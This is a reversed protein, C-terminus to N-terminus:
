EEMWEPKKVPIKLVILDNEDDSMKGLLYIPYKIPIVPEYQCCSYKSCFEQAFFEDEVFGLELEDTDLLEDGVWETDLKQIIRFM